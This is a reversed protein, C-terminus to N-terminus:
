YVTGRKFDEKEGGAYTKIGRKKEKQDRKERQGRIESEQNYLRFNGSGQIQM